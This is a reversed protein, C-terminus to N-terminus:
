VLQEQLLKKIGNCHAMGLVAVVTKGSGDNMTPKVSDPVYIIKGPRMPGRSGENNNNNNNNNNDNFLSQWWPLTPVNNNNDDDNTTTTTTYYQCQQLINRALVKNRAALLEGFLLRSFFIVEFGSIALSVFFDLIQEVLSSVDVGGIGVSFGVVDNPM